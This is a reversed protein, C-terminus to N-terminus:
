IATKIEGSLKGLSRLWPILEGVEIPSGSYLEKYLRQLFLFDRETDLTVRGQPFFFSSEVEPRILKFKDARRYLYPCVHEREYPDVSLTFAKKLASTRIIEVGTGLPIGLYGSYDGEEKEHQIAIENALKASVVPNDGTARIITDVKYKEAALNYRSLVDEGPGRFIDFGTKRCLPSLSSYSDKDTLLVHFDAKVSLLAEMVHEIITKGYLPLLAKGPLRSSGLRAQLFVAKINGTNGM